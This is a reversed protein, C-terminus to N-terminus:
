IKIYFSSKKFNENILNDINPEINPKLKFINIMKKYFEYRKTENKYEKTFITFINM